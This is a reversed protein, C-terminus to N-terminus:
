QSLNCDLLADYATATTGPLPRRIAETTGAATLTSILQSFTGKVPVDCKWTKTTTQLAGSRAPVTHFSGAFVWTCTKVNGSSKTISCELDLAQLDNFDSSCFTDGCVNDFGRVLAAKAAVWKQQNAATTYYDTASVYSETGLHALEGPNMGIPNMFCVSLQKMIPEANPLAAHLPDDGELIPVLKAAYINATIHCQFLPVDALVHANRTDVELNSTAFTWVCEHVSGLKTSVSCGFTLPRLTAYPGGCSGDHCLDDFKTNLHRIVDYWRGQDTKAFDLIDVYTTSGDQEGDNFDGDGGTACATSFM